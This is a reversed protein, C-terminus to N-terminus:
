YYISMYARAQQIKYTILFDHRFNNKISQCHLFQYNM